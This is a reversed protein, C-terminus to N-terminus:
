QSQKYLKRIEADSMGPFMERWDALEAKSMAIADPKSPKPVSSKLHAKSDHQAQKKVSSAVDSRIGDPNAAAYAQKVSFGADRQAGFTKLIEPPMERLHKYQKTEPYAAHLEKLDAAAKAEFLQNRLMNRAIEDNEKKAKEANYQEPTKNEADAAVKVLGALADEEEVGITKLTAKAQSEIANLRAKLDAIETDRPDPTTTAEEPTEEEKQGEATVEDSEGDEGEEEPEKEPTEEETDEGLDDEEPDFEVDPIVINGEEDYEFEDDQDEEAVDNEEVGTDTDEVDSDEVEHDLVNEEV